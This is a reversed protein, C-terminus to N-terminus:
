DSIAVWSLSDIEKLSLEIFKGLVEVRARLEQERMRLRQIEAESAENARGM